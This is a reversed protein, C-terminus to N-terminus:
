KRVIEDSPAYFRIGQITFAVRAIPLTPEDMVTVPLNPKLVLCRDAELYAMISASDQRVASSTFDELWEASLCAYFKGETVLEGAVAHGAAATSAFLLVVNCVGRAPAALRTGVSDRM